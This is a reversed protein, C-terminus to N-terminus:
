GCCGRSRPQWIFQWDVGRQTLSKWSRIVERDAPRKTIKKGKGTVTIAGFGATAQPWNVCSRRIGARDLDEIRNPRLALPLAAFGAASRTSEPTLAFEWSHAVACLHLPYQSCWAMDVTLANSTKKTLSATLFVPGCCGMVRIGAKALRVQAASVALRTGNGAASYGPKLSVTRPLCAPAHVAARCANLEM